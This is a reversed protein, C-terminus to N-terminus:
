KRSSSGAMQLLLLLLWHHPVGSSLAPDQSGNAVCAVGRVASAFCTRLAGFEKACVGKDVQTCTLISVRHARHRRAVHHLGGQSRTLSAGSRM